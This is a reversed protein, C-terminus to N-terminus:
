RKSASPHSASTQQHEIHMMRMMKFNIWAFRVLQWPLFTRWFLTGPTPKPATLTKIPTVEWNKMKLPDNM